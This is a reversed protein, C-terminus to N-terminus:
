IWSLELNHRRFTKGSHFKSSNNFSIQINLLQRSCQTTTSNTQRISLRCLNKTSNIWRSHFVQRITNRWRTHIKIHMKDIKQMNHTQTFMKCVIERRFLRILRMKPRDCCLECEQLSKMRKRTLMKNSSNSFWLVKQDITKGKMPLRMQSFQQLTLISRNKRM